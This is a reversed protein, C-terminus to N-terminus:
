CGYKEKDLLVLLMARYEKEGEPTSSGIVVHWGRLDGYHKKFNEDNFAKLELFKQKLLAEIKDPLHNMKSALHRAITKTPEDMEHKFSSYDPWIYALKHRLLSVKLTNPQFTRYNRFHSSLLVLKSTNLFRKYESKLYKMKPREDDLWGFSLTFPDEFFAPLLQTEYFHLLAEHYTLENSKDKQKDAEALDQEYRKINEDRFQEYLQFQNSNLFESFVSLEYDWEEWATFYHGAAYIQKDQEYQYIKEAQKYTPKLYQYRSKVLNVNWKYEEPNM